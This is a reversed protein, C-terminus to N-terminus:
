HMADDPPHPLTSDHLARFQHFDPAYSPTVWPSRGIPAAGRPRTRPARPRPPRRPSARGLDTRLPRGCPSGTSRAPDDPDVRAARRRRPLRDRYGGHHHKRVYRIGNVAMLTDLAVSQGSAGQAHHVAAQPEYWIEAGAARARRFFDTEESYLFFRYNWPGVARATEAAILLAAGTAWDVPHPERYDDPCRVIDSLGAPRRAFYHGFAADGLARPLTPERRLSPYASGDAAPIRPVVVGAGSSRLRGRPRQVCGPQLWLDPNLVLFEDTEGAADMAPTTGAAYGLNGGTEVVLVDDHGRALALTDDSSANDAVVVRLRLDAAEPRLSAILRDLHYASNFTVILAVLDARWDLGVFRPIISMIRETDSLYREAM